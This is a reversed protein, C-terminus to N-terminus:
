TNLIDGEVVECYVDMSAGPNAAMPTVNALAITDGPNVDIFGFDVFVSVPVRVESSPTAYFGTLHSKGGLTVWQALPRNGAGDIMKTTASIRIKNVGAPVVLNGGVVWGDPDTRTIMVGMSAPVGMDGPGSSVSVEFGHFMSTRGSSGGGGGGGGSSNVASSFPMLYYNVFSVETRGKGTITVFQDPPAPYPLMLVEGKKCKAKFGLPAIHVECDAESLSADIILGQPTFREGNIRHDRFDATRPEGEILVPEYKVVQPRQEGAMGRLDFAKVNM